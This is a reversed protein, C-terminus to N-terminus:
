LLRLTHMRRRRRSRHVRRIDAFSDRAGTPREFDFADEVRSHVGLDWRGDSARRADRTESVTTTLSPASAIDNSASPAIAIGNDSVANQDTAVPQYGEQPFFYFWTLLVLMSLVSALIMNKNNDDQM